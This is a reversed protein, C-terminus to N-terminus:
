ASHDFYPEAKAAQSDHSVQKAAKVPLYSVSCGQLPCEPLILGQILERKADPRHGTSHSIAYLGSETIMSGPFLTAPM